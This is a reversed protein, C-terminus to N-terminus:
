HTPKLKKLIERERDGDAQRKLRYYVSALVVHAERFGPYDRTLDELIHCAEERRDQASRANALQLLAGPDKPRVALARSLLADARDFQRDHLAVVGLHFNASFDNANVELEKEYAARSATDMLGDLVVGYLSHVGPLQPNLALARELDQKAGAYDLVRIRATAMLVRAEASDGNRLIRDIVQRGREVQNDQILASGYLYSFALDDRYEADLPELLRIVKRNDGQQLWCDALLLAVRKDAPAAEHLAQFEAAAREIRGAKYYALALNLRIQPQDPSRALAREYEAIAEDFRGAHALAAGLNVYAEVVDPRLAIVERYKGIAGADDGRQQAEVADRFLQEPNSDQATVAACLLPFLVFTRLFKPM